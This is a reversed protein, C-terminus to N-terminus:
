LSTAFNDLATPSPTAMYPPTHTMLSSTFDMTEHPSMEGYRDFATYAQQQPVPPSPHQHLQQSPPQVSTPQYDHLVPHKFNHLFDNFGTMPLNENSMMAPFGGLFKALPMDDNSTNLLDLSNGDASLHLQSLPLTIPNMDFNASIPSVPMPSVSIPSTMAGDTANHQALSTPNLHLSPVPLAPSTVLSPAASASPSAGASSTEAANAQAAAAKARQQEERVREVLEAKKGRTDRGCNRLIRKLMTVTVDELDVTELDISPRSRRGAGAGAGGDNNTNLPPLPLRAVPKPAQSFVSNTVPVASPASMTTTTALSRGPMLLPSVSPSLGLTGNNNVPCSHTVSLPQPQVPVANNHQLAYQPPSDSQSRSVALPLPPSNLMDSTTETNKPPLPSLLPASMITDSLLPSETQSTTVIRLHSLAASKPVRERIFRFGSASSVTTARRRSHNPMAKRVSNASTTSSSTPTSAGSGHEHEAGFLSASPRQLAAAGASSSRPRNGSARARSAQTTGTGAGPTGAVMHL